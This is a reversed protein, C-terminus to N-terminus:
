AVLKKLRTGQERIVDPDSRWEFKGGVGGYEFACHVVSDPLFPLVAEALDWDSQRMPHSDNWKEEVWKTGTVHLEKAREIPLEKIYALPDTNLCDASMWAHATDLLMGAGTRDLLAHFTEPLVGVQATSEVRPYPITNEVIVREPGFRACLAEIHPLALDIAKQVAGGSRDDPEVTGELEDLRCILHTNAHRTWEGDMMEEAQEMEAPDPLGKVTKFEFHVHVPRVERAEAILDPWPPAKFFDPDFEGTETLERAPRSYNPGFRM